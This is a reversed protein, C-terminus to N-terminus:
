WPQRVAIAMAGGKLSSSRHGLDSGERGRCRQRRRRHRGAHGQALDPQGQARAERQGLRDHHGANGEILVTGDTHVTIKTGTTDM